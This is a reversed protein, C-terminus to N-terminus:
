DRRKLMVGGQSTVCDDSEVTSRKRDATLFMACINSVDDWRMGCVLGSTEKHINM